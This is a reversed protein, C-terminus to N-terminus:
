GTGNLWTREDALQQDDSAEDRWTRTTVDNDQQKSSEKKGHSALDSSDKWGWLSFCRHVYILVQINKEGM